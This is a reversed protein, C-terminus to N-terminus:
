LVSSNYIKLNQALICPTKILRQLKLNPVHVKSRRKPMRLFQKVLKKSFGFKPRILVGQYERLIEESVLLTIQGQTVIDLLLAPIGEPNLLGSIVVNTDYVAKIM